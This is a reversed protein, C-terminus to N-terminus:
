GTGGSLYVNGGARVYDILVTNDAPDGALLVGDYQLLTSLSFDVNTTVTWTHGEARMTEALRRGTLGFNTSYVLFRGPRGNTFWAGINRALHASDDTYVNDSLSWEDHNVFIKGPWQAETAVVIVQVPALAQRKPKAPGALADGTAGAIRVVLTLVILVQALRSM